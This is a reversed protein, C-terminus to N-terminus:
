IMQFQIHFILKKVNCFEVFETTDAIATFEFNKLFLAIFIICNFKSFYMYEVCFAPRKFFSLFFFVSFYPRVIVVETERSLVKCM